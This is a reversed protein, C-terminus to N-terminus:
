LEGGRLKRAVKENLSEESESEEEELGRWWAGFIFGAIIGIGFPIFVMWSSINTM